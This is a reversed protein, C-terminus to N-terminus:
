YINFECHEYDVEETAKHVFETEVLFSSFEDKESEVVSSFGSKQVDQLFVSVCLCVGGDMRM